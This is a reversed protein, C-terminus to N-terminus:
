LKGGEVKDEKKVFLNVVLALATCILLVLQPYYYGHNKYETRDHLLGLLPIGTALFGNQVGQILGYALGRTEPQAVISICPWFVGAYISFYMGMLIISAWVNADPKSDLGEVDPTFFLILHSAGILAV